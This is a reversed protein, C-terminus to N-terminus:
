VKGRGFPSKWPWITIKVTKVTKVTQGEWHQFDCRTINATKTQKFGNKPSRALKGHHVLSGGLVRQGPWHKMTGVQCRSCIVPELNESQVFQM